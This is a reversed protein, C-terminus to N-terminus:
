AHYSDESPNERDRSHGLASTGLREDSQSVDPEVGMGWPGPAPCATAPPDARTDQLASARPCGPGEGRPQRRGCRRPMELAELSSPRGSRCGSIFGEKGPGKRLREEDKEPEEWLLWRCVPAPPASGDGRPFM